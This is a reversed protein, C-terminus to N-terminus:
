CGDTFYGELNLAYEGCDKVFRTIKYLNELEKAGGYVTKIGRLDALNLLSKMIGLKLTLDKEKTKIFDLYVKNGRLELTGVGLYIEKEKACMIIKGQLNEDCNLEKLFACVKDNLEEKKITLVKKVVM